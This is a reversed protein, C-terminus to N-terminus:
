EVYVEPVKVIFAGNNVTNCDIMLRYTPLLYYRDVKSGKESVLTDAQAQSINITIQGNPNAAAEIGNGETLTLVVADDALSILYATFTDSEVVEMPLTTGTQKITLIFKNDVGKNIVFRVISCGM